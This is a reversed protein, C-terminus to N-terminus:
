GMTAQARGTPSLLLVRSLRYGGRTTKPLRSCMPANGQELLVRVVLLFGFIILPIGIIAGIVTITLVVGVIMIVLGLLAAVLRGTLTLIGATLQWLAAFPWLFWPTQKRKDM